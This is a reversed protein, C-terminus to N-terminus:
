NAAKGPLGRCSSEAAARAHLAGSLCLLVGSHLRCQQKTSILPLASSQGQSLVSFPLLLDVKLRVFCPCLVALTSSSM